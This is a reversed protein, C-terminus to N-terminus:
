LRGGCFPCNHHLRKKLNEIDSRYEDREKCANEYAWNLADNIYGEIQVKQILRGIWQKRKDANLMICQWDAFDKHTVYPM